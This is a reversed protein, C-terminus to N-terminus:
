HREGVQPSNGVLAEIAERCIEAKAIFGLANTEAILDAYDDAHHTSTFIVHRNVPAETLRAALALGSDAGLDVDVLIVDPDLEDALAVCQEASEATGIVNLGQHTLLTKSAELFLSNDDVILYSLQV